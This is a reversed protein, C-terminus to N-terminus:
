FFYKIPLLFEELYFLIFYLDLKIKNDILNFPM